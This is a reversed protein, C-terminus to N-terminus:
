GAGGAAARGRPGPRRWGDRPLAASADGPAYGGLCGVEVGAREARGPPKAAQRRRAAPAEAPREPRPMAVWDGDGLLRARAFTQLVDACHGACLALGRATLVDAGRGCGLVACAVRPGQDM